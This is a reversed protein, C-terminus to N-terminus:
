KYKNLILQLVEQNEFLNLILPDNDSILKLIHANLLKSYGDFASEKDESKFSLEFISDSYTFKDEATFTMNLTFEENFILELDDFSISPLKIEAEYKTLVETAIRTTKQKGNDLRVHSVINIIKGIDESEVDIKPFLNRIEESSYSPISRHSLLEKDFYSIKFGANSSKLKLLPKFIDNIDSSSYIGALHLIDAPKFDKSFIDNHYLGVIERKLKLLYEEEGARQVFDNAISITFSSYNVNSVIPTFMNEIKMNLQKIQEGTETIRRKIVARAYSKISKLYGDVFIQLNKLSISHGFTPSTPELKYDISRSRLENLYTYNNEGAGVKSLSIAIELAESLEKKIEENELVTLGKFILEKAPNIQGSKLYLYAASRIIISRTPEYEPKDFYFQALEGEIEAAKKYLDVAESYNNEELQLKANFSYAMAKQHELRPNM